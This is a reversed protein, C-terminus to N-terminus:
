DEYRSLRTQTFLYLLLIRQLWVSAISFLQDYFFQIVITFIFMSYVITNFVTPHSNCRAKKYLICFFAGLFLEVLVISLIGFDNAYWHLSTYVNTAVGDVYVFPQVTNVVPVDFGIRAAIAYFFRFVYAGYFLEHTSDFWNVFAVPPGTFYSTFILRLKDSMSFNTFAVAFKQFSSIIFVLIFLVIGLLGNLLIKRNSDNRIVMRLVVITIILFFWIGRSSLLMVMIVPPISVILNKKNVASKNLCYYTYSVIFYMIVVTQLVGAFGSQLTSSEDVATRVAAWVSGPTSVIYDFSAILWGLAATYNVITLLRRFDPNWSVKNSSQVYIRKRKPYLLIFGIAFCIYALAFLAYTPNSIVSEGQTYFLMGYVMMWIMGSISAPNLIDKTVLFILGWLFISIMILVFLMVYM